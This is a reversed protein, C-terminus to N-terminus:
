NVRCETAMAKYVKDSQLSAGGDVDAAVRMSIIRDPEGVIAGDLNPDGKKIKDVYQIGSIVEGWVSYRGNLGSNDNLMIFFQSNASDPPTSRAMSLVGRLHCKNSFEAKLDPLKSGGAGTGTPDGTQAMFGPIVRHFVIGDYFSQRALTKIRDVHGPAVDPFMQIIVRGDKLDLYLTNEPDPDPVAAQAAGLGFLVTLALALSFIAAQLRKMVHEIQM